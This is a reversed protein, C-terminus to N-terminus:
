GLVYNMEKRKCIRGKTFGEPCEKGFFEVEGNTYWHSGKCSESIRKKSEESHHKGKMYSQRGKRSESMKKKTEDTLRFGKRAESIKRKTEETHHKGKFTSTKGKNMKSLKSRTEESHHHGKFASSRGKAKESIKRKWEESHHRGRNAEATKRIAEASKPQSNIYDWGGEGGVRLNYTDKRKVFNEDVILEELFDMLEADEVDYLIEKTFNEMGYKRYALWLRKGSGMYGDDVNNTKHKGIYIKGNINNTIKYILYHTM